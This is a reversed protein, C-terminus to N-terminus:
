PKNHASQKVGTDLNRAVVLAGPMVAGSPDTIRGSISGTLVVNQANLWICSEPPLIVACVLLRFAFALARKTTRM